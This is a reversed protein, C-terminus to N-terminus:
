EGAPGASADAPPAAPPGAHRDDELGSQVRGAPTFASVAPGGAARTVIPHVPASCAVPTHAVPTHAVPTHAVPTHAVLTHAVLTHAVPPRPKGPGPRQAEGLPPLHLPQGRGAKGHGGRPNVLYPIGSGEM